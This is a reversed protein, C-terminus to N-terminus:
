AITNGDSYQVEHTRMYSRKCILLDLAEDAFGFHKWCVVSFVQPKSVHSTVALTVVRDVARLVMRKMDDQPLASGIGEVERGNEGHGHWPRIAEEPNPAVVASGVSVGVVKFPLRERIRTVDM